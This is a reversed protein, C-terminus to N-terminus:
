SNALLVHGRYDSWIHRTFLRSNRGEGRREEEGRKKEERRRREEEGRMDSHTAVATRPGNKCDRPPARTQRDKVVELAVARSSNPARTKAAIRRACPRDLPPATQLRGGTERHDWVEFGGRRRLKDRM